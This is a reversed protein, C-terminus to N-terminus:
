PQCFNNAGSMGITSTGFAAKNGLVFTGHLTTLGTYTNTGNITATGTYGGFSITGALGPGGSYNQIPGNFTINGAGAISVVGGHAASESRYFAQNFTTGGTNSVTLTYTSGLSGTNTFIGNFTLSDTGGITGSGTLM